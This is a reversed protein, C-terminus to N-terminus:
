SKNAEMAKKVCDRINSGSSQHRVGDSDNWQLKFDKPLWHENVYALTVLNDNLWNIIETDSLYERGIVSEKTENPQAPLPKETTEAYQKTPEFDGCVEYHLVEPWRRLLLHSEKNEAIPAHRRCEGFRFAINSCYFFRCIGCSPQNQQESM